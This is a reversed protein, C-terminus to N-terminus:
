PRSEGRYSHALRCELDEPLPGDCHFKPWLIVPPSRLLTKPLRVADLDDHLYKRVGCHRADCRLRVGPRCDRWECVRGLYEFQPSSLFIDAGRGLSQAAGMLRRAPLALLALNCSAGVALLLDIDKPDPKTTTISGIVAVRAVGPIRVAEGVFTGALDILAARKTVRARPQNM